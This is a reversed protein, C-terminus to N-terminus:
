KNAHAYMAICLGGIFAISTGILWWQVGVKTWLQTIRTLAGPKGNGFVAEHIQKSSEAIFKSAMEIAATSKSIEDVREHIRAISVNFEERKVYEEGM